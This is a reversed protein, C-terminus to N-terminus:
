MTLTRVSRVLTLPAFGTVLSWGGALRRGHTSTGRRRRTQFTLFPVVYYSSSYSGEPYVDGFFGKIDTRTDSFKESWKKWVIVKRCRGDVRTHVGNSDISYEHREKYGYYRLVGDKKIAVTAFNPIDQKGSLILFFTDPDPEPHTKEFDIKEYNTAVGNVEVVWRKSVM